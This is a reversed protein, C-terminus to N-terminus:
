AKTKISIKQSRKELDEATDLANFSPVIGEGRVMHRLNQHGDPDENLM